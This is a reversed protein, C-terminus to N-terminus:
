QKANLDESFLRGESLIFKKIQNQALAIKAAEVRDVFRNHTTLFGQSKAGLEFSQRNSMDLAQYHCQQHTKGTFVIGRNINVPRFPYDPFDQYWTAASKIKEPLKRM